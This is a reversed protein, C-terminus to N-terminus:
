ADSLDPISVAPEALRLSMIRLMGQKGGNYGTLQLLHSGIGDASSEVGGRWTELPQDLTEQCLSLTQQLAGVHRHSQREQLARTAIPEGLNGQGERGVAVLLPGKVPQQGTGGSVSQHRRSRAGTFGFAEQQRHQLVATQLM